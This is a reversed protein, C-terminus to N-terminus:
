KQAEAGGVIESIEQTILSQRIRNYKTQLSDIIDDANKTAGDMAQMRASQESVKSHCMANMVKGKLYATISEIIVDNQSPELTYVDVERIGSKKIINFPLIKEEVIEQRVPSFFKTYILSVEGFNGDKFENMVKNVIISSDKTTPSDGIDVYEALTNFNYKKAYSIGKQGVVITSISERVTEYKESLYAAPNGNFGGCLGTDSSFLIFLKSTSKNSKTFINDELDSVSSLIENNIDEVSNFYDNNINLKQRAKRLKSTAVLGMAKTIKKTNTVSKIRRKIELLGAGAM